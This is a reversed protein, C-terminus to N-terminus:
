FGLRAHKQFVWKGPELAPWAVSVGTRSVRRWFLIGMQVDAGGKFRVTQLPLRIEVAYGTATIRGASQWVWDPSTDEFGSPTNIMDLQIGSPNVLLHYSVQGNGLADLSFGVWDDSWINDRRTISTKIGAPDPDDCRFAFYLADRDYGVWVTTDQPVSEGHLPNYSLWKGTPLPAGTWAEDDLAGDIVPPTTLRTARLPPATASATQASAIAPSVILLIPLILHSAACRQRNSRM